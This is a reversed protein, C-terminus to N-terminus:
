TAAATDRAVGTAAEVSQAHLRRSERIAITELDLVVETKTGGLDGQLSGCGKSNVRGLPPNSVLALDILRAAASCPRAQFPAGGTDSHHRLMLMCM